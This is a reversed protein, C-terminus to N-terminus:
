YSNGCLFRHEGWYRSEDFIEPDLRPKRIFFRPRLSWSVLPRRAAGRGLGERM